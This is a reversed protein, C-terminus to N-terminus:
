AIVTENRQRMENMIDIATPQVSSPDPQAPDVLQEIWKYLSVGNVSRSFFEGSSTHTHGSGPIMYVPTTKALRTLGDHLKNYGVPLIAHCNNNSFAFFTSITADNQSSILSFSDKPYRKRGYSWASVLNGEDNNCPCEKPLNKNLDWTQRWEEQLCVPIATDDLVPGSDDMLVGRSNPYFDRITAYSTLAGFGGASEGTIFLTDVDKFNQTAYSMMLKLNAIGNFNRLKGQFTKTADGGHVDGTCYPVAMWNYDALPNESRSDFIGSSGPNGPHASTAVTACTIANFCAGGGNLYVGLGKKGSTSKRIYVGTQEGNLCKTGSIPVWQWSADTAAVSGVLFAALGKM